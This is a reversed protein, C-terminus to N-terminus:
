SALLEMLRAYPLKGLENRPLQAVKRLPRPLFVADVQPALAQLIESEILSPAVVLAAPRVAGDPLFLIGDEVGPVALLKQTLDSLSARKGAVKLMDANRGILRFRRASSIEVDDTIAVEESLHAGSISVKDQQLSIRMRPHLQWQDTECSRRSAMSGAETCGYIEHVPAGLTQEIQAALEATLPATASIILQVPPLTIGSAMLARLHIPTSILLRPAPVAALADRIDAPFFPKAHHSACNAALAFLVSTELGYMHQPPVTAVVNVADIDPLFVKRALQATRMLVRWSKAHAQPEGTSGSTFAIAAIHDAAIRPARAPIKGASAVAMNDNLVYSEPYRQLLAEVVAPANSAPLLNSQRRLCVAALGLMFRYRDECLNIAYSGQPLQQALALAEAAFTGQTVPGDDRWALVASPHYAAILPLTPAAM